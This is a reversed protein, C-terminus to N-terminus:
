KENWRLMGGELNFVHEFGNALAIRAARASRGGSRCVFLYEKKKDLALLQQTFNDQLCMLRASPIHGLEGQFEENSRVDIIEYRSANSKIDSPLVDIISNGSVIGITDALLKIQGEFATKADKAVNEVQATMETNYHSLHVSKDEISKVSQTIDEFAHSISDSISSSSEIHEKSGDVVQGMGEQIKEVLTFIENSFNAINDALEKVADAVVAFGRGHEGARAAEIAANLALMRADNAFNGISITRESIQGFEETLKDLEVGVHNLNGVSDRMTTALQRNNESIEMAHQASEFIEAIPKNSEKVCVDIESLSSSLHETRESGAHFADSLTKTINQKEREIDALAKDSDQKLSQTRSAIEKETTDNAQALILQADLYQSRYRLMFFVATALATVLLIAIAIEM